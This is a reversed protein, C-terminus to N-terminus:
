ITSGLQHGFDRFAASIISDMMQLTLVTPPFFQDQFPSDFPIQDVKSGMVCYSGLAPSSLVHEAEAVEDSTKPPGPLIM